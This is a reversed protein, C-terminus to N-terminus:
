TIFVTRKRRTQQNHLKIISSPHKDPDGRWGWGRRGGWGREGGGGDKGAAVGAWFHKATTRRTETTKDSQLWEQSSSFILKRFSFPTHTPPHTTPHTHIPPHIRTHTRARGRAQTHTPTHEHTRTHTHTHTHAHAHAHASAHTQAHTRAQPPPPPHMCVHKDVNAMHDKCFIPATCTFTIMVDVLDIFCKLRPLLSLCSCSLSHDQIIVAFFGCFYSM